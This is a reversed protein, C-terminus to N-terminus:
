IEYADVSTRKVKVKKPSSGCAVCLSDGFMDRYNNSVDTVLVEELLDKTLM